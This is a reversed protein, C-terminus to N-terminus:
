IFISNFLRISIALTNMTFFPMILWKMLRLLGPKLFMLNGYEYNGVVLAFILLQCSHLRGSPTLAIKCERRVQKTQSSLLM